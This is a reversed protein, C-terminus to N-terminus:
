DTSIESMTTAGFESTITSTVSLVFENSAMTIVVVTLFFVSDATNSKCFFDIVINSPSEACLILLLPAPFIALATLLTGPTDM